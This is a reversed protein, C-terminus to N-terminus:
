LTKVKTKNKQKENLLGKNISNVLYKKQELVNKITAIKALNNKYNENEKYQDYELIFENELSILSDYAEDINSELLKTEDIEKNIEPELDYYITEYSDVYKYKPELMKLGKKILNVGLKNSNLNAIPITMIGTAIKAVSSLLDIDTKVLKKVKIRKYVNFMKKSIEELKEQIKLAEKDIDKEIDSIADLNKSIANIDKNDVDIKETKNDINTMVKEKIIVVKEVNEKLKDTEKQCVLVLQEIEELSSIDKYDRVDKALVDDNLKQYDEFHYKERIIKFEKKLKELREILENYKKKHKEMEEKNTTKLVVKSLEKLEKSIKKVEKISEKVKVEVKDVIKEELVVKKKEQKLDIGKPLPNIVKMNIPSFLPEVTPKEIIKEKVITQDERDIITLEEKEKFHILTDIYDKRVTQNSFYKKDANLKYKKYRLRYLYSIVRDTNSGKAGRNGNM